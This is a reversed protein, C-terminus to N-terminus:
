LLSARRPYTSRCDPSVTRTTPSWRHRRWLGLPPYATVSLITAGCWHQPWPSRSAKCQERDGINWVYETCRWLGAPCPHFLRRGRRIRTCSRPKSRGPIIPDVVNTLPTTSIRFRARFGGNVPLEQQCTGRLLGGTLASFLLRHRPTILSRQQAPGFSPQTIRSSATGM